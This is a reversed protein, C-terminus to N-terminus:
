KGAVSIWKNANAILVTAADLAQTTPKNDADQLLDIISALQSDINSKEKNLSADKTIISRVKKRLDYLKKTWDFQLQLDIVSTKVRPDMKVILQQSLTQGNALLKVTYTGPMVWPSNTNPATKQYVAGIPYTPTVDVPTYHLDWIFRHAGKTKSLMEQPRVWYDPINDQPKMYPKDASSFKRVLNGKSDSIELTIDDTINQNIYYDIIAGDPPNEGAAEEQPVPTDTYMSWRVRWASSPRHLTIPNNYVITNLERLPAINDLIWFSRGHTGVVIDNDKIVLDRISTAPMNLRLSQWHEGEDLSVYVARESGAYLMGKRYPDERVVNIPDNPLGNVIEKWSKGGDNTKYIHPKQDDLRICNVAAYATQEDFHSAEM